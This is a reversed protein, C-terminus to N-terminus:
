LEQTKGSGFTKADVKSPNGKYQINGSGKIRTKLNNTAYVIAGGSGSVSADVNACVLNEANIKGSGRSNISMDKATGTLEMKGSGGLDINLKAIELNLKMVGSGKLNLDLFKASMLDSAIVNSSGSVSIGSIEQFPVHVTIKKINLLSTNNKFGVSLVKGDSEILIFDQINEEAEITIDGEKGKFLIVEMSGHINITNYDTTKLSRKVMIGNGKVSTNNFAQAFISMSGSMILLFLISNKFSTKM